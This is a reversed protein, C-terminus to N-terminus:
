RAPRRAAFGVLGRPFEYEGYGRLTRVTFGADRLAGLVDRAEPLYLRHVEYSRRFTHGHRRFTTITRTLIRKKRDGQAAYLCAWEPTETFGHSVGALPIRDLTALDFLFHGGPRLAAFARRVLKSLERHSNRGDFLYNFVEGFATIADCAPLRADLFSACHFQVGPARKRAIRIMSASLDYGVVEYGAEQLAESSIGSGCGLEVIRASDGHSRRLRRMLDRAGHQAIFGFGADHIYALDDQYGFANRSNM